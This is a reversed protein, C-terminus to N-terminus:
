LLIFCHSGKQYRAYTVKSKNLEKLQRDHFKKLKALQVNQENNKIRIRDISEKFRQVSAKLDSLDRNIYGCQESTCQSLGQLPHMVSAVVCMM